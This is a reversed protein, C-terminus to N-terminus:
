DSSWQNMKLHVFLDRDFSRVFHEMRRFSQLLTSWNVKFCIMDHIILERLEAMIFMRLVKEIALARCPRFVVCSAVAGCRFMADYGAGSGTVGGGSSTVDDFSM